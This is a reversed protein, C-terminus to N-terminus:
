PRSLVVLLSPCAQHVTEVDIRQQVYVLSFSNPSLLSNMTPCARRESPVRGYESHPTVDNLDDATANLPGTM